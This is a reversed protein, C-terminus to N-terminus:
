AGNVNYEIRWSTNGAGGSGTKMYISPSVYYEGLITQYGDGEQFWDNVLSSKAIISLTAPFPHTTTPWTDLQFVWYCSGAGGCGDDQAGWFVHTSSSAGASIPLSATM